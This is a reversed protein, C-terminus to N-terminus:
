RLTLFGQIFVERILTADDSNLQIKYIEATSAPPTDDFFKSAYTWNQGQVDYDYEQDLVAGDSDRVVRITVNDDTGGARNMAILVDLAVAQESFETTAM